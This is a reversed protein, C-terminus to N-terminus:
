FILAMELISSLSRGVARHVLGSHDDHRHRETNYGNEIISEAKTASAISRRAPYYSRFFWQLFCEKKKKKEKKSFSRTLVMNVVWFPSDLAM